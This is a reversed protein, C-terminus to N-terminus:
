GGMQEKVFNKCAESGEKGAMNGIFEGVLNGLVPVYSGLTAGAVSSIPQIQDCASNSLISALGKAIVATAGPFAITSSRAAEPAHSGLTIETKLPGLSIPVHANGIKDIGVQLIQTGVKSAVDNLGSPGVVNNNSKPPTACGFGGKGDSVVGYKCTEIIDIASGDKNCKKITNGDAFVRDPICVKAKELELTVSSTVELSPDNVDYVKVSCTKALDDSIAGGSVSITITDINNPQLTKRSTQSTSSQVFPECGVLMASFTGAAEGINQVQVNVNGAEGSGFKQATIGSIKPQGSPIVIGLQDARIRFIVNPSTLSRQLTITVKGTNIDKTFPSSTFSTDESLLTDVAQNVPTIANNIETDGQVVDTKAPFLNLFSNLASDATAPYPSYSELTSKRAIQWRNSDLRKIAVFNDQNPAPEGTVLSGSWTATGVEDFSVSSGDCGSTAGSCITKEKVINGVTLTIKADFGITPNNYVGKVGVQEKTICYRKLAKGWFSRGLQMDWNAGTPCPQPNDSIYCALGLPCNKPADFTELKYRYIPVGENIVDYFVQESVSSVDISLPQKSYLKGGMFTKITDPSITGTISQGGGNFQTTIIYYVTAPDTTKTVVSSTSVSSVTFGSATLASSFHAILSFVFFLAILRKTQQTKIKSVNM